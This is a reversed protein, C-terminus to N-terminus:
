NIEEYLEITFSVDMNNFDYLEGDINYFSFEFESLSPINELFEQGIQIFDNFVVTNPNGSLLLKAFINKIGYSDISDKFIYNITLYIYNNGNFNLITNSIIDNNTIGLSNLNTDIEYPTINTITKSYVTISNYDGVNRFGLISGLTGLQNFLLRTQLPYFVKIANGGGTFTMVSSNNYKDLKIQYNNSDIITEINFSNNLINSPIGESDIANEIIITDNSILNHNPHTVIIRDFGDSNNSFKKIANSLIVTSYFSIKFINTNPSINIDVYHDNLYIIQSANDNETTNYNTTVRPIKIIKSKIENALDTPNFNGPTIEINYIYDGDDVNQWYLINNQKNTPTSKIIKETNPIETSLLRIKNLKKFNKGLNYKFYNSNPFGEIVNVIKSIIINKGGIGIVNILNNLNTNDSLGITANVSLSVQYYDKSIINTITLSSQLQNINIPYNSNINNIPIGNIAFLKSTVISNDSFNPTTNIKIYFYNKNPINIDDTFYINHIKNIYNIPINNFYTNNQTNGNFNSLLILYNYSPNLNHNPYNIKVFFNNVLFEIKLENSEVFLNKIIIKDGVSYNHNSDSITLLNSNKQFYFPNEPLIHQISDLINKPNKNRYKSDINLRTIKYKESHNSIPILKRKTYENLKFDQKNISRQRQNKLFSEDNNTISNLYENTENNQYINQKVYNNTDIYNNKLLINKKDDLNTKDINFNLKTTQM